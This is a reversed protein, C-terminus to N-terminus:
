VRGTVDSMWSMDGGTLQDMWDPPAAGVLTGLDWYDKWLTIVGDHVHQVSVFPLTVSEGTPWEWSETHETMVVPGDSVVTAPGHAYGTLDALGLKLRKVINGPGEAAAGPGTPVDLYISGPGFFSAVRDWDRAYLADWFAATVAKPDDGLGADAAVAAGAGEAAVPAADIGEASM